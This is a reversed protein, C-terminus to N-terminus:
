RRGDKPLRSTVGVFLSWPIVFRQSYQRVFKPEVGEYPSGELEALFQENRLAEDEPTAPVDGEYFPVAVPWDLSALEDILLTPQSIILDFSTRVTSLKIPSLNVDCGGCRLNYNSRRDGRRNANVAVSSNEPPNQEVRLGNGSTRADDIVAIVHRGDIPEFM